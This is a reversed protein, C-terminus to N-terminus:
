HLIWLCHKWLVQKKRPKQWNNRPKKCNTTVYRLRKKTTMPNKRKKSSSNNTWVDKKNTYDSKKQKKQSSKRLTFRINTKNSYLRGWKVLQVQLIWLCHKWLVQKKRPKQWNNRPKKCNTTVYRLRKKTTMPNKRKKSSSKRLTFRINTKNPYLRDWKVLQM